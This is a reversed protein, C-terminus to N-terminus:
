FTLAKNIDFKRGASFCPYQSYGGEKLKKHLNELLQIYTKSQEVVDLFANTMAGQFKGSIYADASTQDDRCGSYMYIQGNNNKYNQNAYWVYKNQQAGYPQALSWRLDCATGSHCCDLICTLKQEKRICGLVGRIEDDVIQQGGVAVLTEDWGDEEDGNTDLVYGGHGSYHFYLRKSDSLILKLLEKLINQKTPKSSTGDTMVKINEKKYGQTLLFQKIRHVDNICGKLEYKSGVYNIGILLAKKPPGM